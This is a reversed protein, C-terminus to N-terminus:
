RRLEAVGARELVERAIAQYRADGRLPLFELNRAVWPDDLGRDLAVQLRELAREADGAVIWRRAEAHAYTASEPGHEARLKELWRDFASDARTEEGRGVHLNAWLFDLDSVETNIAQIRTLVSEAADLDGNMLRSSASFRLIEAVNEDDEGYTAEMIGTLRDFYALASEFEGLNEHLLGLNVLVTRLGPHEPGLGEEQIALARELRTRAEDFMGVYRLLYGLNSLAGAVDVHNPGLVAERVALSREYYDLAAAYERRSQYVLGLNNLADSVKLSEPGFVSENIAMSREYFHQAEILNGAYYEQVGLNNLLEAVM